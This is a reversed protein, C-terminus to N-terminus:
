SRPYAYPVREWREENRVAGRMTKGLIRTSISCAGPRICRFWNCLPLCCQGRLRLQLRGHVGAQSRALARRSSHTRAHCHAHTPSFTPTLKSFDAGRPAHAFLLSRSFLACAVTCATCCQARVDSVVIANDHLRRGPRGPASQATPITPVHACRLSQEGTGASGLQSLGSCCLLCLLATARACPLMATPVRLLSCPRPRCRLDSMRLVVVTPMVLNPM